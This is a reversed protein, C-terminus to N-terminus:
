ETRKHQQDAVIFGSDAFSTKTVQGPYLGWGGTVETMETLLGSKDFHLMTGGTSNTISYTQDGEPGRKATVERPAGEGERVEVKLQKVGQDDLQATGSIRTKSFMGPKADKLAILGPDKNALDKRSDNLHVVDGVVEDIEKKLKLAEPLKSLPNGTSLYPQNSLPNPTIVITELNM